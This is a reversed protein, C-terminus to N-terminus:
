LAVVESLIATYLDLEVQTGPHMGSFKGKIQGRVFNKVRLKCLRYGGAHGLAYAIVVMVFCIWNTM